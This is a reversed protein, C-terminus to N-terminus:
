SILLSPCLVVSSKRRSSIVSTASLSNAISSIRLTMFFISISSLFILSRTALQSIFLIASMSLIKNRIPIQSSKNKGSIGGLTDILSDISIAFSYLVALLPFNILPIRSAIRESNFSVPLRLLFPLPRTSSDNVFDVAFFYISSLFLFFRQRSGRRNQLYM